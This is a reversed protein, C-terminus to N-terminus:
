SPNYLISIHMVTRVGPLEFVSFRYSIMESGTKRVQILTMYWVVVAVTM